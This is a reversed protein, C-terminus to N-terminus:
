PRSQSSSVFRDWAQVGLQRKLSSFAPTALEERTLQIQLITAPVSGVRVTATRQHLPTFYAMEGFIQGEGIQGVVRGGKEVVLDGSILLCFTDDLQSAEAYITTGPKLNKEEGRWFLLSTVAEDFAKFDRCTRVTQKIDSYEM